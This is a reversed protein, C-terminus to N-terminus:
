GEKIIVGAMLDDKASKMAAQYETQAKEMAPVVATEGPLVRSFEDLCTQYIWSSVDAFRDGQTKLYADLVDLIGGTIQCTYKEGTSTRSIDINLTDM